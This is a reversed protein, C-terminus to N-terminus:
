FEFSPPLQCQGGLGDISDLDRLDLLMKRGPVEREFDVVQQQDMAKEADTPKRVPKGRPQGDDMSINMGLGLKGAVENFGGSREIARRLDNRGVRRLDGKTPMVGPALDHMEIFEMIETHINDMSQWYGRPRRTKHKLRWGMKEAVKAHGGHAAIAKELGSMNDARLEARTPVYNGGGGYRAELLARVLNFDEVLMTTPPAQGKFSALSYIDMPVPEPVVEVRKFLTEVESKLSMLNLPLDEFVACELTHEILRMADEEMPVEVEVAYKLVTEPNEPTSRMSESLIWKGQLIDMEGRCKRFQIENFKKEVVHLEYACRLDIYPQSKRVVQRLRRYTKPARSATKIIKSEVMNPFIEPLREYDTLVNWVQFRTAKISVMAVVRRRLTGDVDLKRFHVESISRQSNNVNFEPYPLEDKVSPKQSKSAPVPVSMTGLYSTPEETWRRDTRIDKLPRNGAKPLTKGKRVKLPVDAELAAAIFGPASAREQAIKEAARAVGRINFPLWAGVAHMFLMEPIDGKPRVVVEFRLICTNGNYSPELLWRGYYEEFDGEVMRFRIERMGMPLLREEVDLLGEGQLKWFPSSCFVARQFLRVRASSQGLAKSEVLFPVVKRLQAYDTLVGWVQQVSASVLAKASVKERTVNGDISLERSEPEGSIQAAARLATAPRAPNKRYKCPSGKRCASSNRIPTAFPSRARPREHVPREGACHVWRGGNM